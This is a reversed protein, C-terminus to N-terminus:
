PASRVQPHLWLSSTWLRRPKAAAIVMNHHVMGMHGAAKFRALRLLVQVICVRATIWVIGEFAIAPRGQLIFCPCHQVLEGVVIVVRPHHTYHCGSAGWETRTTDEGGLIASPAISSAGKCYESWISCWLTGARSPGYRLVSRLLGPTSRCVKM